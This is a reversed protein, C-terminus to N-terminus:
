ALQDVQRGTFLDLMSLTAKCRQLTEEDVASAALDSALGEYFSDLAELLRQGKATLRILVLRRDNESRTHDVYGNETLRKLNYSINTGQYCGRVMLDKATVEQSGINLLIMAQVANLDLIKLQTLEVQLRDLTRRHLREALAIVALYEQKMYEKQVVDVFRSM